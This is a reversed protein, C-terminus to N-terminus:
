ILDKFMEKNGYKLLFDVTSCTDYKDISIYEIGTTTFEKFMYNNGYIISLAAPTVCKTSIDKGNYHFIGYERETIPTNIRRGNKVYTNLLTKFIKQSNYVVTVHIPTVSIKSDMITFTENYIDDLEYQNKKILNNFENVNDKQIAKILNIEYNCRKVADKNNYYDKNSELKTFKSCNTKLVSDFYENLTMAKEEAYTTGTVCILMIFALFLRM